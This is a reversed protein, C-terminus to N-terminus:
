LVNVTMTATGMDQGDIREIKGIITYEGRPINTDYISFRFDFDKSSKKGLETELSISTQFDDLEYSNSSFKIREDNATLTIIVDQAGDFTSEVTITKSYSLDLRSIDMKNEYFKITVEECGLTFSVLLLAILLMAKSNKKLM